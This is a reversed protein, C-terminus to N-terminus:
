LVVLMGRAGVVVDVVAFDLEPKLEDVLWCSYADRKTVEVRGFTM